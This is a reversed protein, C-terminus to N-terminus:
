KIEKKVKDKFVSEMIDQYEAFYRAFLKPFTNVLLILVIKHLTLRNM